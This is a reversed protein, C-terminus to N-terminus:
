DRSSLATRLEVRLRISTDIPLGTSSYRLDKSYNAILDLDRLQRQLEALLAEDPEPMDEDQEALYELHQDIADVARQSAWVAFDNCGFLYAHAAYLTAAAAHEDADDPGDQGDNHCYDSLMYEAVGRKVATFATTDGLVGEWLSNLLPRLGMTFPAQEEAPLAEHWSMLREAIGVAFVKREGPSAATLRKEVSASVEQWTDM